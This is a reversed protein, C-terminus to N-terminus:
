SFLSKLAALFLHEFMEVDQANYCGQPCPKKEAPKPRVIILVPREYILEDDNINYWADNHDHKRRGHYLEHTFVRGNFRRKDCGKIKGNGKEQVIINIETQVVTKAYAVEPM